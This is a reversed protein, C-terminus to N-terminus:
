SSAPPLASLLPCAGLADGTGQGGRRGWLEGACARELSWWPASFCVADSTQEPPFHETKHM